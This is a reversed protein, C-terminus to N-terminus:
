VWEPRSKAVELLDHPALHALYVATTELRSHGLLGQIKKTPISENSLEWAFTHRLGHFHVRKEIGAREGLRKMLARIYPTTLPDGSLTCFVPSSGKIGLEKRVDLWREVMALAYNDIGVKRSKGGKGSRVHLYEEKLDIDRPHLGLVEVCRLGARYGVAILARNRIGTPARKSTSALLSNVEEKTYVEPPFKLGRNSPGM